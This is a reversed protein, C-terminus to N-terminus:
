FWHFLGSFVEGWLRQWGDKIVFTILFACFIFVPAAFMFFSTADKAGFTIAILALITVVGSIGTILIIAETIFNKFM